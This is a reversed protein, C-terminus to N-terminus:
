TELVLRLGDTVRKMHTDALRGARSVLATRDVTALQSVNVVSERPLGGARRPLHVNGPDNGRALSSTVVAVM